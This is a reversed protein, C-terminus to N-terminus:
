SEVKCGPTTPRRFTAYACPNEGEGEGLSEKVMKVYLRSAIEPPLANEVLTVLGGTHKAVMDATRLTLPPLNVHSATTTTTTARDGPHKLLDFASKVAPGADRRTALPPPPGAAADSDSDDLVLVASDESTKRPLPPPALWAGIRGADVDSRTRKRKKRAGDSRSAGGHDLSGREIAAFAREVNNQSAALYRTLDARSRHPFLQSLTEVAEDDPMSTLSDDFDASSFDSRSESEGCVRKGPCLVCFRVFHCAFRRFAGVFLSLEEWGGGTLTNATRGM